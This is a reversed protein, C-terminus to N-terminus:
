VDLNVENRMKLAEDYATKASEYRTNIGELAVQVNPIMNIKAELLAIEGANERLNEDKNRMQDEIKAIQNQKSQKEIELNEKRAICGTKKEDVMPEVSSEHSKRLKGIEDEIKKLENQAEIVKPNKDRLTLKLNTWNQM